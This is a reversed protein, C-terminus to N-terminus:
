ARLQSGKQMSEISTERTVLTSVRGIALATQRFIPFKILVVWYSVRSLQSARTPVHKQKLFAARWHIGRQQFNENQNVSAKELEPQM